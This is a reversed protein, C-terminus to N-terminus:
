PRPQQRKPYNLAARNLIAMLLQSTNAVKNIRYYLIDQSLADAFIPMRVAFGQPTRNLLRIEIDCESRFQETRLEFYLQAQASDILLALANKMTAELDWKQSVVFYDVRDLMQYIETKRGDISTLTFGWEVDAGSHEEVKYGEFSQLWEKVQAKISEPLRRSLGLIV